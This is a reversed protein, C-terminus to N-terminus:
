PPLFRLAVTQGPVVGDLTRYVVQLQYDGPSKGRAFPSWGYVASDTAGAAIRLNPPLNPVKCPPISTFVDEVAGEPSRLILGLGYHRCDVRSVVPVSGPNTAYVHVILDDTPRLETRSPLLGLRLIEPSATVEAPPLSPETGACGLLFSLGLVVTSRNM